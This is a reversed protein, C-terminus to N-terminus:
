HASLLHLLQSVLNLSSDTVIIDDVYVLLIRMHSGSILVFLSADRPSTQFGHNLLFFSFKHYWACQTQTLEYISKHLEYVYDLYTPYIFGHCQQIYIAEMLNGYLFTNNVDLQWSEVGQFYSFFSFTLNHYSLHCSQLYWRLWSWTPKNSHQQHFSNAVPKIGSM